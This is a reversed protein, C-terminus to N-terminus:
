LPKRVHASVGIATSTINVPLVLTSVATQGQGTITVTCATAPPPNQTPAATAQMQLAWPSQGSTSLLKLAAGGTCTVSASLNTGAPAQTITVTQTGLANFNVPTASSAVAGYATLTTVPVTYGSGNLTYTFTGPGLISGVISGSLTGNTLQQTLTCTIISSPACTVTAQSTANAQSFPWNFSVPYTANAAPYSVQVVIPGAASAPTTASHSNAVVIGGVAAAGAIAGITGGSLGAGGASGTGSLSHTPDFSNGSANPNLPNSGNNFQNVAPNNVVSNSAISTTATLPTAGLITLTQGTLVTLTREGVQATVDGAACQVCVLQTGQAGAVLFGETGRVAIQSTATVFKYNSQGGVPHRIVFHLAGNNLAITNQNGSSVANFAGVQVMTTAGIDIESSDALRLVAASNQKTVAFADDPLELQGFIARFDGSATTQYGVIGKVRALQKDGTASGAPVCVFATAVIASVAVTWFRRLQM